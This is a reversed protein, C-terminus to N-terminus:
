RQRRRMWALAGLGGLLMPLGAPLPVSPLIPTGTLITSGYGFFTQTSFDVSATLLGGSNTLQGPEDLYFYFTQQDCTQFAQYVPCTLAFAAIQSVNPPLFDNLVIGDNVSMPNANVGREGYYFAIDSLENTDADYIFSGHYTGTYTVTGNFFGAIEMADATEWYVPVAQVMSALGAFVAALGTRKMWIM